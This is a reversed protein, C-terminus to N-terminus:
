ADIRRTRWAGLGVFVAIWVAIIILATGQPVAVSQGRSGPEIPSFHTLSESLLGRRASGLSSIQSILPSAVLQWGILATISAAKSGSLSAFGVAIACIAGTSLLTFGLGNFVLAASPTPGGSALLYSGLLLLAFAGLVVMWCLVLAAPIRSAFLATRSRGTVVLDRFVGASVDGAGAEVGILIAALPGFFIAVARLGDRYGEIGGAPGHEVPSSSHQVAKVIFFVVVPALALVLAWILTGRKKRLKLLDAGFMQLAVASM